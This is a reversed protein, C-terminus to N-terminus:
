LLNSASVAGPAIADPATETKSRQMDARSGHPPPGTPFNSRAEPVDLPRALAEALGMM